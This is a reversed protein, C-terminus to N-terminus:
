WGVMLDMKIDGEWIRRPRGLRRKGEPKGALIRYAHRSQEMRAVHEAWRLRRPKHNRIVNFLSYFAYLEASHLKRWEETIEDRKAGIINRVM